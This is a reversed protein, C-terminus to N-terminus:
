GLENMKTPKCQLGDTKAVLTHVRKTPNDHIGETEGM